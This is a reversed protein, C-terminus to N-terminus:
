ILRPVAVVIGNGGPTLTHSAVPSVSMRFPKGDLTFPPKPRRSARNPGVAPQEIKAAALITSTAKVELEVARKLGTWSLWTLIRLALRWTNLKVLFV